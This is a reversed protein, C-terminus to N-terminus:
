SARQLPPDAPRSTRAASDAKVLVFDCDLAEMLRSTLSGVLGAAGPRHALAGLVLVDFNRDTAYRPLAEEPDGQLFRWGGGTAGALEPPASEQASSAEPAAYIVDLAGAYVARLLEATEVINLSLGSADQISVDVAAAFAPPTRWRRGRTLMLTAPCRRMLQWDNPDFAAHRADADGAGKIVLDPRVDLIRRVIGEYLPSECAASVAVREAPLPLSRRADVLYAVANSLCERQMEANHSPDYAHKLAYAHAADCLFLELRSNFKDALAAAKDLVCHDLAGRDLVALISTPKTM